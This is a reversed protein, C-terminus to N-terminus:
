APLRRGRKAYLRQALAFPDAAALMDSRTARLGDTFAEPYCRAVDSANLGRLSEEALELDDECVDLFSSVSVAGGDRDAAVHVALEKLTPAANFATLIIRTISTAAAVEFADHLRARLQNAAECADEAAHGINSRMGQRIRECLSAAEDSLMLMHM